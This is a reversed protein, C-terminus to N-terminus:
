LDRANSRADADLAAEDATSTSQLQALLARLPRTATQAVPADATPALSTIELAQEAHEAHEAHETQANQGLTALASEALLAQLRADLLSRTAGSHNATRQALADIRRWRVPDRAPLGQARAADLAQALANEKPASAEPPSANCPVAHSDDEARGAGNARNAPLAADAM